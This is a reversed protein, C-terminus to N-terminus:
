RLKGTFRLPMPQQFCLRVSKQRPVVGSINSVTRIRTENGTSGHTTAISDRVDLGAERAFWAALTNVSAGTDIIFVAERDGIRLRVLPSPFGKKVLERDYHLPVSSGACISDTPPSAYLGPLITLSAVIALRLNM